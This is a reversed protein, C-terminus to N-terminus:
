NALPADWVNRNLTSRSGAGPTTRLENRFQQIGGASSRSMWEVIGRSEPVRAYMPGVLDAQEAVLGVCNRIDVFFGPGSAANKTAPDPGFAITPWPAREPGLAFAVDHLQVTQGSGSPFAAIMAGSTRPMTVPDLQCRGGQVHLQGQNSVKALRVAHESQYGVLHLKATSRLEIDTDCRNFQLNFATTSAATQLGTELKDFTCDMISGWVSQTNQIEIGKTQQGATSAFICRNIRFQDNNGAEGDFLIGIDLHGTNVGQNTWTHRGFGCDEIVIESNTGSGAGQTAHFNLGATPQSGDKGIFMLGRFHINNSDTIKFMPKGAPGTWRFATGGGASSPIEYSPLNGAGTGLLTGAFRDILVTDSLVYDGAPIHLFGGTTGSRPGDASGDLQRVARQVAATDDAVGDGVAGFDAVLNKGFASPVAAPPRSPALAFAGAGAALLGGGALFSRRDSRALASEDDHPNAM